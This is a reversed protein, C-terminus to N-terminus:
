HVILLPYETETTVRRIIGSHFFKQLKGPHFGMALMDAGTRIVFQNVSEGIDDDYLVEFSINVEGKYMDAIMKQQTQLEVEADRSYTEMVQVITLRANFVRALDIISRAPLTDNRWYDCAFVIHQIESFGCGEPVMLLPINTNRLVRYTNSGLLDQVIGDEGNTGMVILDFGDAARGIESTLSMGTGPEEAYCSIRFVRNVEICEQDLRRRVVADNTGVGLIAEEPTLESLLNIHLIHLSAGLKQALKAAYIVGNEGTESFDTPCLIKKM